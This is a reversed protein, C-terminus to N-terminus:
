IFSFITTKLHSQTVEINFNNTVMLEIIEENQQIYKDREKCEFYYDIGLFVISNLFNKKFNNKIKNVHM